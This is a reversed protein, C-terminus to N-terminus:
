SKKLWPHVRISVSIGFRLQDQVPALRTLPSFAQAPFAVSRPARSRKTLLGEASTVGQDIGASINSVGHATFSKLPKALHKVGSRKVFAVAARFNKWSGKQLNEVPLDGPRKEGEPHHILTIKTQL